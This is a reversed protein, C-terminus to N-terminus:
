SGCVTLHFLERSTLSRKVDLAVAKERLLKDREARVSTLEKGLEENAKKQEVLRRQVTDASMERQAEAAVLGHNEQQLLERHRLANKLEERLREEEGAMSAYLVSTESVLDCMAERAQAAQRVLDQGVYVGAGIRELAAATAAAAAEQVSATAAAMESELDLQRQAFFTQLDSELVRVAQAMEQKEKLQRRAEEEAEQKAEEICFRDNQLERIERVLLEREKLRKENACDKRRMEQLEFALNHCLNATSRLRARFDQMQLHQAGSVQRLLGELAEMSDQIPALLASTQACSADLIHELYWGAELERHLHALDEDHADLEREVHWRVDAQMISLTGLDELMSYVQGRLLLREDDAARQKAELVEIRRDRVERATKEEGQERKANMLFVEGEESCRARADSLEDQMECLAMQVEWVSAVLARRGREQEEVVDRLATRNEESEEEACRLVNVAAVALESSIAGMEELTLRMSEMKRIKDKAQEEARKVQAQMEARETALVSEVELVRKGLMDARAQTEEERQRIEANIQKERGRQLEREREAQQREEEFERVQRALERTIQRENELDALATHFRQQLQTFTKTFLIGDHGSKISAERLSASRKEVEERLVGNDIQSVNLLDTNRCYFDDNKLKTLHRFPRTLISSKAIQM